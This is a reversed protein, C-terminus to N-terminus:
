VFCVTWFTIVRHSGYNKGLIKKACKKKHVFRGELNSYYDLLCFYLKQPMHWTTLHVSRYEWSLLFIDMKKCTYTLMALKLHFGNSARTICLGNTYYSCNVSREPYIILNSICSNTFTTVLYM